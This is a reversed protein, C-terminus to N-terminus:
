VLKKKAKQPTSRFQDRPPKRFYLFYAQVLGAMKAVRANMLREIEGKRETFFSISKM